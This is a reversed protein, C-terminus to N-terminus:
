DPSPERWEKATPKTRDCLRFGGQEGAEEFADIAEVLKEVDEDPPNMDWDRAMLVDKAREVVEQAIKLLAAETLAKTM